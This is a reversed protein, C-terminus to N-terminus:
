HNYLFLRVQPQTPSVSTCACGEARLCRLAGGPDRGRERLRPDREPVAGGPAAVDEASMLGRRWISGSGGGALGARSRGAGWSQGRGRRTPRLPELGARTRGSGRDRGAVMVERVWRLEPSTCRRVSAERLAAAAASLSRPAPPPGSSSPRRSSDPSSSFPSELSVRSVRISSTSSSPRLSRSTRGPASPLSHGLPCRNKPLATPSSSGPPPIPDLASCLSHPQPRPPLPSPPRSTDPVPNTNQLLHPFSARIKSLPFGASNTARQNRPECFPQRSYMYSPIYLARPCSLSRSIPGLAEPWRQVQLSPHVECM